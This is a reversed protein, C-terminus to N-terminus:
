GEARLWKPILGRLRTRSEDRLPGRVVLVACNVRNVLERTVDGMVYTRLGRSLASGSVVLDYGGARAERLIEDLVPGRGLKVEIAVGLSELTEKEHRLNLGLESQSQLLENVSEDMGRLSSYIAPPEPMVHFLSVGAGTGLAIDGILRVMSDRYRRGGSCVLIRKIGTGSGAVTLVPPTVEKIIKYAKSSMWFLGRTEKRVAGIVVLDYGAEETRKKIEAVPEGSKTILEARIKRDELLTQGRKLSDLIAQSKGPNEVIGFLTVEAKCGAALITGLHMAKDAQESGDNCILIKVAQRILRIGPSCDM